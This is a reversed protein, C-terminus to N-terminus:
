RDDGDAYDETRQTFGFGSDRYPQPIILPHVEMSGGERFAGRLNLRGARGERYLSQMQPTALPVYQAAKAKRDVAPFKDM